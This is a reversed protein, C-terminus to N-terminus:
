LMESNCQGQDDAFVRGKLTLVPIGHALPAGSGGLAGETETGTTQIQAGIGRYTSEDKYQETCVALM